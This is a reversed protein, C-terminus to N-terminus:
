SSAAVPPAAAVLITQDGRADVRRIVIGRQDLEISESDGMRPEYLWRYEDTGNRRYTQKISSVTLTLPDIVAIRGTFRYQGRGRARAIILSKFIVLDGDIERFRGLKVIVNDRGGLATISGRLFDDSREFTASRTFPGRRYRVSLRQVLLDSDLSTEVEYLDDSEVTRRSGRMLEKSLTVNEVALVRGNRQVEWRYNGVPPMAVAAEACNAPAASLESPSPLRTPNMHLTYTATWTGLWRIV